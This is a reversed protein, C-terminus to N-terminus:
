IELDTMQLLQSVRLEPSVEVHNDEEYFFFDNGIFFTM